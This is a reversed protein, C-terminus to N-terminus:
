SLVCCNADGEQTANNQKTKRREACTQLPSLQTPLAERCAAALVPELRQRRRRSRWGM